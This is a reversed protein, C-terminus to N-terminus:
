VSTEAEPGKCKSKERNAIGRCWIGMHGVRGGGAARQVFNVKELLCKRVARPLYFGKGRKVPTGEDSNEITTKKKTANIEM